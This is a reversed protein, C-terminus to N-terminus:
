GRLYEAAAAVLARAVAQRDIEAEGYVERLPHATIDVAIDYKEGDAASKGIEYVTKSIKM